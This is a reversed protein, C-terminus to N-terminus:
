ALPPGWPPLQTQHFWKESDIAGEGEFEDWWVLSDFRTVAEIPEGISQAVLSLSHFVVAFVVLSFRMLLKKANM